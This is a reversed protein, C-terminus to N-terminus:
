GFIIFGIAIAAVVSFVSGTFIVAIVFGFKKLM